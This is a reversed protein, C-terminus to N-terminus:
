SQTNVREKIDRWNYVRILDKEVNACSRNWPQDYLLKLKSDTNKLKSPRDDIQVAYHSRGIVDIGDFPIKNDELWQVLGMEGMYRTRGSFIVLEYGKQKWEKLTELAGEQFTPKGWVTDRFMLDIALNSVGLLDALDYASIVLGSIDVGFCKKVLSPFNYTTICGDVDLLIRKPFIIKDFLDEIKPFAITMEPYVIIPM